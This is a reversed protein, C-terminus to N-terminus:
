NSQKDKTYLVNNIFMFLVMEKPSTKYSKREFHVKILDLLSTLM